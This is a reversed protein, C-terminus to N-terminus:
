GAALILLLLWLEALSHTALLWLCFLMGAVSVVVGGPM